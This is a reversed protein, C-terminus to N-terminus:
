GCWRRLMAPTQPCSVLGRRFAYVALEFRDCLELKDLISTVHNRVTAGSIFLREAIQKNKLGEAVLMVIDWERRTLSELKITDADKPGRRALRSIVEATGSRGLWMEGQHVKRIAKFLVDAPEDWCVVGLAGLEISRATVAPDVSTTLVITRARESAPAIQQSLALSSDSAADFRFLAVDPRQVELVPLVDDATGIEAIVQFGPTHRLLSAVAQRLLPVPEIVVVTVVDGILPM